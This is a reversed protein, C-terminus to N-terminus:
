LSFPEIPVLGFATDEQLLQNGVVSDLWYPTNWAQFDLNQLFDANTIGPANENVDMLGGGNPRGWSDPHRHSDEPVEPAATPVVESLKSKLSQLPKTLGAHNGHKLDILASWLYPLCDPFNVRVERAHVLLQVAHYAAFCLIYPARRLTFTDKYAKVLGWVKLAASACEREVIARSSQEECASLHGNSM